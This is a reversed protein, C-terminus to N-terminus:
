EYLSETHVTQLADDVIPMFVMYNIYTGVMLNNVVCALLWPAVITAWLDTFLSAWLFLVIMGLPLLIVLLYYM